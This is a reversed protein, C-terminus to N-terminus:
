LGYNTWRKDFRDKYAVLNNREDYIKLATNQFKQMSTALRKAGKLSKAKIEVGKRSDQLHQLEYVTYTNV